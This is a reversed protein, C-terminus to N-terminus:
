RTIIVLAGDFEKEDESVLFGVRRGKGLCVACFPLADLDGRVFNDSFPRSCIFRSPDNVDFVHRKFSSVQYAIEDKPRPRKELCHTPLPSNIYNAIIVRDVGHTDLAGNHTLRDASDNFQWKGDRM